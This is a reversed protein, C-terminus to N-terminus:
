DPIRLEAVSSETDPIRSEPSRCWPNPAKSGFGMQYLWSALLLWKPTLNQHNQGNEPTFVLMKATKAGTHGFRGFRGLDPWFHCFIADFFTYSPAM